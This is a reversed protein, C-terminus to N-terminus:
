CIIYKKILTNTKHILRYSMLRVTVAIYPFIGVFYEFKYRHTNQLPHSVPCTPLPESLVSSGGSCCRLCLPYTLGFCMQGPFM